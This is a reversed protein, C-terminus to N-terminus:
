YTLSIGKNLWEDAPEQKILRESIFLGVDIRRITYGVAPREPVGQRVFDLGYGEGDMLLSPKVAVFARIGRDNLPLKVHATLNEELIRKDVHPIHLLLRYLPSMLLPEDRPMGHPQIGTTSVYILLPKVTSKLQVLAQLIANGAKQCIKPNDLTVPTFFSWQLQPTGGIGCVITDVVEGNLQLARKVAEVDQINGQIITLHQDLAESSVGKSKMSQTLKAPTRALAICDYGANLTNALTYGACDGTAGFFAIKSAPM